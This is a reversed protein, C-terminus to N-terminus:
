APGARAPEVMEPRPLAQSGLPRTRATNRQGGDAPGAPTPAADGSARRRDAGALASLAVVRQLLAKDVELGLTSATGLGIVGSTLLYITSCRKLVQPGATM